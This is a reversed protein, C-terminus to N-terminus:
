LNDSIKDGARESLLQAEEEDGAKDSHLAGYLLGSAYRIITMRIIAKIASPSHDQHDADNDQEDEQEDDSSGGSRGVMWGIAFSIALTAPRAMLAQATTKIESVDERIASRRYEVGAQKADIRNKQGSLSTM